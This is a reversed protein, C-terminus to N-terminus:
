VGDNLIEYILKMDLSKRVHAAIIDFQSDCDGDLSSGNNYLSDEEPIDFKAYPIVGAVPVGTINELIDVGDKFYSLDGRFRNIITAKVYKREANNLLNVTGYLSAFIGGRDIDGVLLVPSKTRTAIGMNVIDDSDKLLNLEVPSGAGEIVIIDYEKSLSNYSKLIDIVLQQKIEKFNYANITDHPKGNLIIETVIKERSYKLIIPNMNVNPEVGAAKAQLLQSIAIEDGNETFATNSTMNQSKFPAVKYGDQKFIRCLAMAIITKGVGSATGQIM